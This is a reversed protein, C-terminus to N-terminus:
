NKMEEIMRAEEFLTKKKKKTEEENLYFVSLKYFYFKVSIYIFFTIM